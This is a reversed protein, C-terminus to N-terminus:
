ATRINARKARRKVGDGYTKTIADANGEYAQKVAHTAAIKKGGMEQVVAYSQPNSFQAAIATGDAVWADRLAGTRNRTKSRVDGILREGVEANVDSLNEMEDSLKDFARVVEAKGKVELKGNAM